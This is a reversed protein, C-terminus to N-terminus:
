AFSNEALKHDQLGPILLRCSLALRHTAFGLEPRSGPRKGGRWGHTARSLWGSEVKSWHEFGEKSAAGHVAHLGGEQHKGKLDGDRARKPHIVLCTEGSGGPDNLDTSGSCKLGAGGESGKLTWPEDDVGESTVRISM